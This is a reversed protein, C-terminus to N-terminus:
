IYDHDFWNAYWEGAQEALGSDRDAILTFSAPTQFFLCSRLARAEATGPRELCAAADCGARVAERCAHLLLSRRAEPADGPVALDLIAMVDFGQVNTRRLVIYGQDRGESVAAFTTYHKQGFRQFRRRLTDNTREARIAWSAHSRALLEEDLEGTVERVELTRRTVALAARSAVGSLGNLGSALLRPTGPRISTLGRGLALPFAYISLDPGRAFGLNLHAKLMPKITILCYLFDLGFRHYEGLVTRELDPFL